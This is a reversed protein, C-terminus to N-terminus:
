TLKALYKIFDAVTGGRPFDGTELELNLRDELYMSFELLDLSDLSLDSFKLKEIDVRDLDMTKESVRRTLEDIVVLKVEDYDM